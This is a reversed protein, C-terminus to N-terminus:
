MAKTMGGGDAADDKRVITDCAKTMEPKGSVRVTLDYVSLEEPPTKEKDAWDELLTGHLHGSVQRGADPVVKVTYAATSQKM